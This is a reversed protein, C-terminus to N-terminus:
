FKIKKLVSSDYEISLNNKRVFKVLSHNNRSAEDLSEIIKEMYDKPFDHNVVLVM